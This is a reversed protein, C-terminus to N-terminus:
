DSEEADEDEEEEDERQQEGQKERSEQQTDRELLEVHRGTAGASSLSRHARAARNVMSYREDLPGPFSSRTGKTPRPNSWVGKRKGPRVESYSRALPISSSQDGVPRQATSPESGDTMARRPTQLPKGEERTEPYSPLISANPTSGAKTVDITDTTRQMSPRKGHVASRGPPPGMTTGLATGVDVNDSSEVAAPLKKMTTGPTGNNGASTHDEQTEDQRLLSSLPEDGATSVRPHPETVATPHQRASDGKAHIVAALGPTIEVVSCNSNGSNRGAGRDFDEATDRNEAPDHARWIIDIGTTVTDPLMHHRLYERYNRVDRATPRDTDPQFYDQKGMNVWALHESTQESGRSTFHWEGKVGTKPHEWGGLVMGHFYKSKNPPIWAPQKRAIREDVVPPWLPRKANLPRRLVVYRETTTQSAQATPSHQSVLAANDDVQRQDAEAAASVPLGIDLISPDSASTSRVPDDGFREGIKGNRIHPGKSKHSEDNSADDSLSDHDTMAGHTAILVAAKTGIDIEVRELYVHQMDGVIEYKGLTWGGSSPVHGALNVSSM